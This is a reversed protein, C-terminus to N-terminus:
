LWCLTQKKYNFLVRSESLYQYNPV